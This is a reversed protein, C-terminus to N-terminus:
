RTRRARGLCPSALLNDQLVADDSVCVAFTLPITAARRGGRCRPATGPGRDSIPWRIRTSRCEWRGGASSTNIPTWNRCSGRPTCAWITSCRGWAGALGPPAPVRITELCEPEFGADLFLKLHDLRHLVAFSHRRAARGARVPVRRAPPCGIDHPAPHPSPHSRWAARHSSDGWGDWSRRPISSTSWSTASRSATSAAPSSRRTAIRWTSTSCAISPEAARAGCRPPGRHRLRDSRAPAAQAARGLRGEACGVDLIAAADAPVARLLAPNCGAYYKEPQNSTNVMLRCSRRRAARSRKM